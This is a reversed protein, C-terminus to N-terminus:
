ANRKANFYWGGLLLILVAAAAWWKWGSKNSLKVPAMDGIPIFSAWFYPSQGVNPHNAIYALKAQRLAESKSLGDRLYSYFYEMLIKTSLDNVKWLSTVISKAGAYSFGRALSIIGEGQRLEGIGAECASLVVMDANLKLSYVEGTFLLENEISDEPLQYFALYSFDGAEYNAYGHTSLHLLRFDDALAKFTDETASSDTIARGDIIKVIELVEPINHELTDLAANSLKTAIDNKNLLNSPQSAARKKFPPAIALLGNPPTEQHTKSQMVKQLTASHAYSFCYKNLLFDMEFYAAENSPKSSLLVSFPVYHLVGDPVLIIEMDKKLVPEIPAFVKEYLQYSAAAFKQRAAKDAALDQKPAYYLGQRIDQVWQNLPFDISIEHLFSTDSLATFIYITSDGTFYEVLAQDKKSILSSQVGAVSTPNIEYLEHYQPFESEFLNKLSDLQEALELIQTSVSLVETSSNSAGSSILLHRQQELSAKNVKLSYEKEILSDPIGAFSRANANLVAELLVLSKANEFLTFAQAILEDGPRVANLLYITELAGEVVLHANESFAPKTAPSISKFHRFLVFLGEQYRDLSKELYSLENTTHYFRRELAGLRIFIDILAPLDSVFDLSDMTTYNLAEMSKKYYLRSAALSDIELFTDGFEQFGLALRPHKNGLLRSFVDIADSFYTIASEYEKTERHTIGLSGYTDGIDPHNEGDYFDLRIKLAENYCAKAAKYDKLFNYSIGLNNYSDAILRPTCSDDNLRIHLAKKDYEKSQEYRNLKKCCLAMNNYAKASGLTETGDKENYLLLAKEHYLMAKSYDGQLYLINGVNTYGGALQVTSSSSNEELIAVTRLMYQMATNYFGETAYVKGLENLIKATLLADPAALKDSIEMSKELYYEASDLLYRNFANAGAAFWLEALSQRDEQRTIADEDIQHLLSIGEQVKREEILSEVSSLLQSQLATDTKANKTALENATTRGDTNIDQPAKARDGPLAPGGQPILFLLPLMLILVGFFMSSFSLNMQAAKILNNSTYVCLKIYYKRKVYSVISTSFQWV